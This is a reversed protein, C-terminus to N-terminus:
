KGRGLSGRNYQPDGPPICRGIGFLGGQWGPPCNAQANQSTPAPAPAPMAARKAPDVYEWRGDAFLRVKDGEATVAEIATRPEAQAQALGAVALAAAAIAVRAARSV